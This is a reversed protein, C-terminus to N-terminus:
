GSQAAALPALAAAGLCPLECICRVRCMRRAKSRGGVRPSLQVILCCRPEQPPQPSAPAHAESGWSAEEDSIVIIRTEVDAM